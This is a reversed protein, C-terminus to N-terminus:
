QRMMAQQIVADRSAAVAPAAAAALNLLMREVSWTLGALNLSNNHGAIIYYLGSKQSIPLGTDSVFCFATVGM